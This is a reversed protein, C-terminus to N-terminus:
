VIVYKIQRLDGTVGHAQLGKVWMELPVKQLAEDNAMRLYEQIVVAMYSTCWLKGDIPCGHHIERLNCKKCCKDLKDEIGFLPKPPKIRKNNKVM